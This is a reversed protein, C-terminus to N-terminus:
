PGNYSCTHSKFGIGKDSLDIIDNINKDNEYPFGHCTYTVYCTTFLTLSILRNFVDESTYNTYCLALSILYLLYRSRSAVKAFVYGIENLKWRKILM